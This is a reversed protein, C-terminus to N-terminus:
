PGIMLNTLIRSRRRWRCGGVASSPPVTLNKEPPEVADLLEMPAPLVGGSIPNLRAVAAPQWRVCYESFRQDPEPFDTSILQAGSALAADRQRVDHNRAAQTGADARSRVLFGAKVLSKIEALGGLPDNRKMWAAAPHHRDVSAFLLSGALQPSAALYRSRVADENDLLFIVKGRCQSIAPWGLGEIAERLTAFDGRVDDPTLIRELEWVALIERRLGELAIDDWALPKVFPSFSDSKLELLIFVPLHNPRSASWAKIQQLAAQLTSVTTRFDVDPSHLIKIGPQQMQRQPDFEPVETQTQAALRLAWPQSYLRGQPDWYLDLELQRIGLDELQEVLPRHSYDNAEAERAAFTQILRRAVPDPAVHYSNHTGILQIQNLRLVDRSTPEALEAPEAALCRGGPWSCMGDMTGDASGSIVIALLLRAWCYISRSM